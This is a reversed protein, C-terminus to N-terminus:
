DKKNMDGSKDDDESGHSGSQSGNSGTSQLRSNNSSSKSGLHSTNKQISRSQGLQRGASSVSNSNSGQGVIGDLDNEGIGADFNNM